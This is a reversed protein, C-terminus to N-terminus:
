GIYGFDRFYVEFVELFCFVSVFRMCYVWYFLGFGIFDVFYFLSKFDFFDSIVVVLMYCFVFVCLYIGVMESFCYVIRCMKNVRFDIM